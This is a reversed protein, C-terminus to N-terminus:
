TSRGEEGDTVQKMEAVARKAKAAAGEMYSGFDMDEHLIHDVLWNKLFKLVEADVQRAGSQLKENLDFISSYLREHLERHRDLKPYTQAAMMAEERTFHREAYAVLRTLANLVDKREHANTQADHVENILDFLYKHETDIEKVGIRYDDRWSLLTM